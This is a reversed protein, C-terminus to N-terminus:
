AIAATPQISRSAERLEGNVMLLRRWQEGQWLDRVAREAHLLDHYRSAGDRALRSPDGDEVVHGNEMVLVRDFAETECVDHTICLLTADKWWRRANELLEARKGRDLGRAPEDLIVLRADRRLMARGARVRVGEGGSLLAGGEGIRTQMGEPLKEVVGLLDAEELARDVRLNSEGDAGYTLNELLSRNWLQIAPDIWATQARLGEPDIPEGDVLVRGAAPQHWGLLLGALSSKGAGSPGVIAVHSGPAISINLDELIARGAARVAVGEIALSVGGAAPAPEHVHERQPPDEVAGLPELLRLTVNRLSPLQRAAHAVDQGLSPLSLVWYLLLLMGAPDGGRAARDLLLWAAFGFGSLLQLAELAVALRQVANGSRTWELLLSEHACRLTREAGHARIATLGLLADLYFRSLAGAHTRFRLDREILMPQTGLPLLVAVIAASLGLSAAPPDVWAIAAAILALEFVARVLDEAIGPLRRVQHVSHCREAMDSNLRSQFYCDRLRPIKRLFSLRLRLELRRSLRLGAAAIPFELLALAALFLSFAAIGWLRQSTVVLERGLDFLGRLLVAETVVGASAVALSVLLAIATFRGDAGVLKLMEWSPHLRKDELAAVLEPTSMTAHQRANAGHVTILVAGKVLVYDSAVDDPRVFWYEGPILEPQEALREVLGASRGCGISRTLRVAADLAGLSRWGPDALAAAIWRQATSNSVGIQGLRRRLAGLFHESEAFRRWDAVPARMEHMYVEDLFRESSIWRRGVSPDMVQLLSGHRRWVVVFHTEGQPLVIVVLAPLSHSEAILLHDAPVLVQEAELGLAVAAEEIADISTGDVGTQCAERLRGYSARIGFGELLCKLSAPGCDMASTQIVETALFRM